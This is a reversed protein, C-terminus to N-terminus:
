GHRSLLLAFSVTWFGTALVLFVLEGLGLGTDHWWTALGAIGALGVAFAVILLCRGVV